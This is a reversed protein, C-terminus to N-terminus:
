AAADLERRVRHLLEGSSFPKRLVLHTQVGRARIAADTQGSMFVLRPKGGNELQKALDDPRCDPLVVDVLALDVHPGAADVAERCTGAGLVTYGQERLVIEIVERVQHDDDIVMVTETGRPADALRSTREADPRRPAEICPLYLVLSRGEDPAEIGGGIDGLFRELAFSGILARPTAASGGFVGIAVHRGPAACGFSKATDADLSLVTCTVVVRDASGLRERQAGVLNVLVQELRTREVPVWAAAPEVALELREPGGAVLELLPRLEQLTRGPLVGRDNPPPPESFRALERVRETALSAAKSLVAATEATQERELRDALVAIPTLLTALENSIQATLAGLMGTRRTLALEAEVDRLRTVEDAVILSRESPLPTRRVEYVHLKGEDDRAKLQPAGSGALRWAEDLRAARAAANGCVLRDQGDVILLPVPCREFVSGSM